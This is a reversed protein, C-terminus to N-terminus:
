NTSNDKFVIKSANNESAYLKRVKRSFMKIDVNILDVFPDATGYSYPITKLQIGMSNIYSASIVNSVLTYSANNNDYALVTIRYTRQSTPQTNIVRLRTITNIRQYVQPSNARVWSYFQNAVVGQVNNQQTINLITRNVVSAYLHKVKKAVGQSSAYFGKNLTEFTLTNGETAGADTLVRTYLTYQTGEELGAISFTSTTANGTAVTDGTQWTSGDFSYQISKSFKGGDALTSYSIIVETEDISSVSLTPAYARTTYNGIRQSGTASAGNTAYMGLTYTTNGVITLEGTSTNDVTINGSMTDGRVPQYRRPHVLGSDSKTWVQFERYRDVTGTSNTGWGSVAITATFSEIGRQINSATLGTPPSSTGPFGGVDVSWTGQFDSRLGSGATFTVTRTGTGSVTRSFTTTYVNGVAIGSRVKDGFSSDTYETGGLNMVPNPFSSDSYTYTAGDTRWYHMRGYLTTGDRWADLACSFYQNAM